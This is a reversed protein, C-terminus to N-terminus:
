VLRIPARLFPAQTVEGGPPIVIFDDGLGNPNHAAAVLREIFHNSGIREEYTMGWRSRCFEAVERAQPAYKKHDEEDSAVFILRKYHQYQENMLWDATEEGYRAVYEKYKALPNDGSELWGKCLYYTAPQAEFERRYAEYSGLLLAICDDTRPIILTHPGAKLGVLGNGCLGYGILVLSPEPLRDLEAQLAAAMTKPQRHLGYDMYTTHVPQSDLLPSLMGELVKCSLVVVPPM